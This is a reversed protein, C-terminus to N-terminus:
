MRAVYCMQCFLAGLEAVIPSHRTQIGTGAVERLYDAFAQPASRDMAGCHAHADIVAPAPM